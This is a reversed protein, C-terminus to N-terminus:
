LGKGYDELCQQIATPNEYYSHHYTEDFLTLLGTVCQGRRVAPSGSDGKVVEASSVMMYFYNSLVVGPRRILPGKGVVIVDSKDGPKLNKCLVLPVGPEETYILALDNSLSQYVVKGTFRYGEYKELIVYDGDHEEINHKATIILHKQIYFGGGYGPMRIVEPKGNIMAKVDSFVKIGVISKSPDVEATATNALLVSTVIFIALLSKM